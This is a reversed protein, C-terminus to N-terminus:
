RKLHIPNEVCLKRRAISFGAGAVSILMHMARTNGITSIKARQDSKQQM